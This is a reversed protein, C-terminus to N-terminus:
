HWRQVLFHLGIFHLVRSEIELTLRWGKCDLSICLHLSIV